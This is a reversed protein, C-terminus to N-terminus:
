VTKTLDPEDWRVPVKLASENILLNTFYDQCKAAMRTKQIDLALLNLLITTFEIQCKEIQM